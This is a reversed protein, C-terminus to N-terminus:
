SSTSLFIFFNLKKTSKKMFSLGESEVISICCALSFSFYKLCRTNNNVSLSTFTHTFPASLSSSFILSFRKNSYHKLGYSTSLHSISVLSSASNMESISLITENLSQAFKTLIFFLKCELIFFM